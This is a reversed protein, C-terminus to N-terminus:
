GRLTADGSMFVSSKAGGHIKKGYLLVYIGVSDANQSYATPTTHSQVCGGYVCAYFCRYRGGHVIHASNRYVAIEVAHVGVTAKSQFLFEVCLASGIIGVTTISQSASYGVANGVICRKKYLIIEGIVFRWTAIM